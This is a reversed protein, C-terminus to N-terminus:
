QQGLGLFARCRYPGIARCGGGVGEVAQQGRFMRARFVGRGLGRRRRHAGEPGAGLLRDRLKAQARRRRRGGSLGVGLGGLSSLGGLGSLSSM